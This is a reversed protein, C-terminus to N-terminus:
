PARRPRSRTPFKSFRNNTDYTLNIQRGGAVNVRSLKGNQNYDLTQANNNRDVIATLKGSPNFNYKRRDKRTVSYTNDANKVLKNYVGSYKPTYNAGTKDYVEEHGDDLRVTATNDTTNEAVTLNYSHTWGAGLSGTAADQSNYFRKFEFGFGKGAVTM